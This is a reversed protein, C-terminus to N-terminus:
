NNLIFSLNFKMGCRQVSLVIGTLQQKLKDVETKMKGLETKLQAVQGAFVPKKTLKM